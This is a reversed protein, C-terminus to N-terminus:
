RRHRGEEVDHLRQADEAHRPFDLLEPEVVRLVAARGVLAEAVELLERGLRSRPAWACGRGGGSGEPASVAAPAAWRGGPSRRKSSWRWGRASARGSRRRFILAVFFDYGAQVHCSWGSIGGGM